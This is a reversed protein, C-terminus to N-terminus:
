GTPLKAVFCARCYVPLDDTPKFPVSTEQGCEACSVTHTYKDPDPWNIETRELPKTGAPASQSELEPGAHFAEEPYSGTQAPASAAARPRNNGRDDGGRRGRDKGKARKAERCGPCRKPDNKLGRSEYRAQDDASHVFEQGCDVCEIYKDEFEM